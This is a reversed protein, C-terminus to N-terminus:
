EDFYVRMNDNSSSMTISNVIKHVVLANTGGSLPIGKNSICNSIDSLADIMRENKKYSEEVRFDELRCYSNEEDAGLPLFLQIQTNSSDDYLWPETIRVRGKEFLLDIEFMLNKDNQSTGKIFGHHGGRFKMFAVGGPDLIGFSERIYDRQLDGVLWDVKGGFYVILDILHSTSTLLATSGYVTITQLSGFKQKKIMESVSIYANDWRRMYNVALVIGKSKCTESIEIAEELNSGMPKEIFFAKPPNTSIINKILELHTPTPTCISILDFNVNDVMDIYNQFFPVSSYVLKFDNYQSKNFDSVSHLDIKPHKVYAEAHSWILNRNPDADIKYGIQGLGVIAAKLM